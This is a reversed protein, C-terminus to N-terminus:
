RNGQCTFNLQLLTALTNRYRCTVSEDLRDYFLTTSTDLSAKHIEWSPKAIDLLLKCMAAIYYLFSDGDPRDTRPEKTKHARRKEYTVRCTTMICVVRITWSAFDPSVSLSLIPKNLWRIRYVNPMTAADKTQIKSACYMANITRCHKTKNMSHMQYEPGAGGDERNTNWWGHLAQALTALKDM